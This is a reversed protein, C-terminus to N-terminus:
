NISGGYEDKLIFNSSKSKWPTYGCGLGYLPTKLDHHLVIHIGFNTFSLFLRSLAFAYKLFLPHKSHYIYNRYSFSFECPGLDNHLGNPLLKQVVYSIHM